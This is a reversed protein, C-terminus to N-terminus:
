QGEFIWHVEPVDEDRVVLKAPGLSKELVASEFISDNIRYIVNKGTFGLVESDEAGTELTIQNGNTLDTLTLRGAIYRQGGISEAFAEQVNPLDYTGEKRERDHGPNSRIPTHPRNSMESTVFWSGFLREIPENGPVKITRWVNHEKDHATYVTVKPTEELHKPDWNVVGTVLFRPSAAIVM